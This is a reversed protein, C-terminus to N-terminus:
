NHDVSSRLHMCSCICSTFFTRTQFNGFSWRERSRGSQVHLSVSWDHSVLFMPFYDTQWRSITVGALKLLINPQLLICSSKAQYFRTFVSSADRIQWPEGDPHPPNPVLAFLCLKGRKFQQLMELTSAHRLSFWPAVQFFLFTRKEDTQPICLSIPAAWYHHFCLNCMIFLLSKSCMLDNWNFYTVLGFGTPGKPSKIRVGSDNSSKLSKCRDLIRGGGWWFYLWLWYIVLFNQKNM